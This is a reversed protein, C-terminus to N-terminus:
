PLTPSADPSAVPSGTGAGVGAPTVTPEPTATPTETPVPTEVVPTAPPVPTETVPVSATPVPTITALIEPRINDSEIFETEIRRQETNRNFWEVAGLVMYMDLEGTPGQPQLNLCTGDNLNVKLLTPPVSDDELGDDSRPLSAIEIKEVEGDKVDQVVDSSGANICIPVDDADDDGASFWVILLLILLVAGGAALVGYVAIPRGGFRRRMRSIARNVPPVRGLTPAAPPALDPNTLDAPDGVDASDDPPVSTPVGQPSM